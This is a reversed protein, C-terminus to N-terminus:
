LMFTQPQISVKFLGSASPFAVPLVPQQSHHVQKEAQGSIKFVLM